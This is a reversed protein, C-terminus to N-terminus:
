ADHFEGFVAFVLHLPALFALALALEMQGMGDADIGLATDEDAVPLVVANLYEITLAFEKKLPLIRTSRESKKQGLLAAHQKGVAASMQGLDEIRFSFRQDAPPVFAGGGALEVQGM